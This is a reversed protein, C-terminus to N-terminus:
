KGDQKLVSFVFIRDRLLAHRVIPHVSSRCLLLIVRWIGRLHPCLLTLDDKFIYITIYIGQSQVESCDTCGGSSSGWYTDGSQCCEEKTM